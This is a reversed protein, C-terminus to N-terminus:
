AGARQLDRLARFSIDQAKYGLREALNPSGM